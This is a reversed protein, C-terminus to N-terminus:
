PSFQSIFSYKLLISFITIYMDILFGLNPLFALSQSFTSASFLARALGVACVDM